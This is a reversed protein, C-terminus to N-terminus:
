MISILIWVVVILWILCAEVKEVRFGNFEKQNKKTLAFLLNTLSVSIPWCIVWLIVLWM